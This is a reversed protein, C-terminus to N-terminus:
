DHKKGILVSSLIILSAGLFSLYVGIIFSKPRYNFRILNEGPPLEVGRLAGDVKYVHTSKGNVTAQWNSDFSDALVLFGRAQNETRIEVENDDHKISIVKGISPNAPLNTKEEVIATSLPDFLSSELFESLEPKDKATEIKSVFFARDAAKRNELVVVQGEEYAPRYGYNVLKAAVKSIKRTETEKLSLFYKVNLLDLYKPDVDTLESFRGLTDTYKGNSVVSFLRNYDTLRLPDYGGISELGYYVWTNPPMLPGKDIAIRFPKPQKQLFEIAPTTPFVLRTSVFPTQKNFYRTLDFSILLFITLIVLRKNIKLLSFITLSFLLLVPLILNRLTIPRQPPLTVTLYGILSIAILSLSSLAITPAYKKESGLRDLCFAILVAASVSTLFLIRSAYSYTLLPLPQSFIFRTLPSSFALLLSIIFTLVFFKIFKTQKSFNIFLPAILPLSLAGLFPSVEHYDLKGFYNGTTPNGFFDQAWLRFIESFPLLGYNFLSAFKEGSRISRFYFEITPLLQPSALLLGLLVFTAILFLNKRTIFIAYIAILTLAYIDVQVHGALIMLCIVLSLFTLYKKKKTTSFMDLCYLALPLFGIAWVATGFEVWTTMLASFAFVIAGASKVLTGKVHNGLFLYMSILCLLTSLFIYIAWGYQPSLIFVINAPFFVASHYDALLPTGSFSYKNWLPLTLKKFLKAELQKWPYFLSFTDSISPNKIPVGVPYDWKSNLWPYYAGILADGPLPIKGSFIFERYAFVAVLLLLILEIFNNQPKFLQM